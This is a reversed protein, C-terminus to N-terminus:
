AKIRDSFRLVDRAVQMRDADALMLTNASQVAPASDPVPDGEHIVLGDIMGQYHRAVTENSVEFGLESMLKDTPGKVAKGSVLPSVAIVPAPTRKIADSIGPVSFIPDISLYPNSPAIVVVDAAEIAPVVGPAPRATGAGEFSISRTRPQCRQEVFYRQFPLVGDETRVMTRVPDDSMPIVTSRLQWAASIEAVIGSLREGERLRQTRIVHLALDGDGLSFWDEGGLSRLVRMFTWSEDERGWGQARNAQGTLTYLVTDLDPCITLGLHEFDDGTNVIVALDAEPWLMHFGRALKAGGVGGCLLAVRSSM